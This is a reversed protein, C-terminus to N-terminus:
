SGRYTTYSNDSLLLPLHYHEKGDCTFTISIEPYITTRGQRKFYNGIDFTLRYDGAAADAALNRCRGDADTVSAAVEVWGCPADRVREPSEGDLVAIDPVELWGGGDLKELNVSIGAAPKGLVTDLVHTTIASM